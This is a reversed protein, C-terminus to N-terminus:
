GDFKPSHEVGRTLMGVLRCFTDVRLAPFCNTICATRKLGLPKGVFGILRCSVGVPCVLLHRDHLFDESGLKGLVWLSLLGKLFAAALVDDLIRWRSSRPDLRPRSRGFCARYARSSSGRRPARGCPASARRQVLSLPSLKRNVGVTKLLEGNPRSARFRR